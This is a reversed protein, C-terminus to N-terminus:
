CVTKCPSRTPPYTGRNLPPRSWCPARRLALVVCRSTRTPLRLQAGPAKYGSRSIRTAAGANAPASEARIQSWDADLEEAVQLTALGTYPGQGMELHKILVTVTNDPAVRVFGNFAPGASSGEARMVAAAGSGQASAEDFHVGIVLSAGIGGVSQLFSRRTFQKPSSVDKILWRM